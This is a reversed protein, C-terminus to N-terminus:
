EVYYIYFVARKDYNAGTGVGNGYYVVKITDGANLSRTICRTNYKSRGADILGDFTNNIYLKTAAIYDCYTTGDSDSGVAQVILYKGAKKTTFIDNSIQLINSDDVTSTIPTETTVSNVFATEGHGVLVINRNNAMSYLDDLAEDLSILNGNKEYRVQDATYSVSAFIVVSGTLVIGMVFAIIIKFNKKIFKM